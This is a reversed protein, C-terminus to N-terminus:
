DTGSAAAEINLRVYDLTLPDPPEVSSAADWDRTASRPSM